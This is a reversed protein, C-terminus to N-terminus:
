SSSVPQADTSLHILCSKLAANCTTLIVVQLYKGPMCPHVIVIAMGEGSGSLSMPFSLTFFSNSWVPSM